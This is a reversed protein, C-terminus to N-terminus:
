ELGFHRAVLEVMAEVKRSGDNTISVYGEERCQRRVDEAFLIDRNMWNLFAAEQDRCERLVYPVFKRKRFHYIQFESVPTISLYRNGPIGFAKMLKPLYAAGETIVGKYSGSLKRLEELIFESVEQYFELEERCQLKPDRMWIQEASMEVTKKCIEYGKGAGMQTYQDLFDDVKYYYLDYRESLIEAVTSKGACPSGGIVYINNM